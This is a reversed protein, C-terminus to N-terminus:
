AAVKLQQMVLVHADRSRQLRVMEDRGSGTQRVQYHTAWWTLASYLTWLNGQSRYGRAMNEQHWRLAILEIFRDSTNMRKLIERVQDIDLVQNRMRYIDAPLDNFIKWGTELREKFYELKPAFEGTHRRAILDYDGIIMGNTCFADIAGFLIRISGSGDNGKMIITRFNIKSVTDAEFSRNQWVYQRLVKEGAGVCDDKVVCADMDAGAAKFGQECATVVDKFSVPTYKSGVIGLSRPGDDQMRVIHSHDRDLYYANPDRGTFYAPRKWTDFFVSSDPNRIQYSNSLSVVNNM